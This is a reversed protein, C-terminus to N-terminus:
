SGWVERYVRLWNGGMVKDIDAQSWGRRRFGAILNPLQGINDFGDVYLWPEDVMDAPIIEKNVGGYPIAMGDVFNTGM